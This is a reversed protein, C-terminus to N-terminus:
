KEPENTDGKSDGEGAPPQDGAPPATKQVKARFARIKGTLSDRDFDNGVNLKITKAYARLADADMKELTDSADGGAVADKKGELRGTETSAPVAGVGNKIVAKAHAESIEIMGAKALFIETAPFVLGSVTNMVWRGKITKVKM